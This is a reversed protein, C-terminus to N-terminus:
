SIDFIDVNGSPVKPGRNEIHGFARILLYLLVVILLILIILIYKRNKKNGM